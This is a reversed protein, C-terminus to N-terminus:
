NCPISLESIMSVTWARRGGIIEAVAPRRRLGYGSFGLLGSFGSRQEVVAVAVVVVAAM